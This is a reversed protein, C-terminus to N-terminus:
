VASKYPARCHKNYNSVRNIELFIIRANAFVLCNIFFESYKFGIVVASSELIFFFDTWSEDNCEQNWNRYICWTYIIYIVTSLIMTWQDGIEDVFCKVWM